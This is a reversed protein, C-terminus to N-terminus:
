GKFGLGRRGAAGACRAELLRLRRQLCLRSAGRTRGVVAPPPWWQGAAQTERAIELPAAVVLEFVPYGLCRPSQRSSGTLHRARRVGSTLPKGGTLGMAYM